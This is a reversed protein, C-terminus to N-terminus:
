GRADIACDSIPNETRTARHGTWRAADPTAVQSGEDGPVLHHRYSVAIARSRERCRRAQPLVALMRSQFKEEQLVAPSGLMEEGFDFLAEAELEIRGLGFVSGCVNIAVVDANM